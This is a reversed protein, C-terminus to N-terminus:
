LDMDLKYQQTEINLDTVVCMFNRPDVRGRDVSPVPLTVNSGVADPQLIQYSRAVMKDAQWELNEHSLHRERTIQMGRSCVDCLDCNATDSHFVATCYKCEHEFDFPEPM